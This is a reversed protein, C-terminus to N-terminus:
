FLLARQSRREGPHHQQHVGLAARKSQDDREGAAQRLFCGHRFADLLPRRLRVRRRLRLEEPFNAAGRDRHASKEAFWIKATKTEVRGKQKPPRYQSPQVNKLDFETLEASLLPVESQHLIRGTYVDSYVAAQLLYDVKDKRTSADTWKKDSSIMVGEFFRPQPSRKFHALTDDFWLVGVPARVLQDASEQWNGTYNTSGPLSTRTLVLQDGSKEVSFGPLEVSEISPSHAVVLKGGFPRVSEAIQKLEEAAIAETILLLNAVYPPLECSQRISIRHGYVGSQILADRAPAIQSGQGAIVLVQMRSQAVMSELFANDPQGVIVALGNEVGCLEFIAEVREDTDILRPRPEDHVVVADPKEKGLCHIAGEETVVILKGDAVLLSHVEGSVGPIANGFKFQRGAASISSRVNAKGVIKMEGEHRKQNVSREYLLERKRAVEGAPLLGLKSDGDGPEDATAVFWGGPKRGAAPLKFDILKGTQLDFKAPYASSSPVILEDGNILLYGQPALGGFAVANHPHVGYIYGCDDNLWLQKGTKADLAYVFVGEFSWVGAAFYVRGDRLVPGGRVPWTSILRRNGFVQRDSPVAKFKWRLSGDEVSVCYLHGDDSGFYVGGEWAVPAFRVPGDTIFRWLLKGTDTDLAIVSDDHSSGVFMRKGLVVPEYGRDFQLRGDQFAPELEALQRTWQLHLEGAAGIEVPSAGTRGSDFRWQPWDNGPCIPASAWALLGAALISLRFDM